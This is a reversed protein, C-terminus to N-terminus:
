LNEKVYNQYYDAVVTIAQECTFWKEYQADPPPPAFPNPPRYINEEKNLKGETELMYNHFQPSFKRYNCLAYDGNYIYNDIFLSTSGYISPLQKYTDGLGNQVDGRYYNLAQEPNVAGSVRHGAVYEFFKSKTSTSHSINSNFCIQYAIFEDIGRSVLDNFKEFSLDATERFHRSVICASQVLKTSIDGAIVFGHNECYDFDDRNLIFFGYPSRYLFWQLFPRVLDFKNKRDLKLSTRKTANETVLVERYPSSSMEAHCSKQVFLRHNGEGSVGMFNTTGSFYDEKEKFLKKALEVTEVPVSSVWDELGKPRKVEFNM